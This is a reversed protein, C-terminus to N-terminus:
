AGRYWFAESGPVADSIAVHLHAQLDAVGSDDLPISTLEGPEYSHGHPVCLSWCTLAITQVSDYGEPCDQFCRNYWFPGPATCCFDSCGFLSAPLVSAYGDACEQFCADSHYCVGAPAPDPCCKKDRHLWSTVTTAM